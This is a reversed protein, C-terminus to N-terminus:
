KAAKIQTAAFPDVMQAERERAEQERFQNAVELAEMARVTGTARAAQSGPIGSTPRALELFIIAPTQNRSDCAVMVATTCLSPFCADRHKGILTVLSKAPWDPLLEHILNALANAQSETISM